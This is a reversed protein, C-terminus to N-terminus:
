LGGFAEDDEPSNWEDLTAALADHWPGHFPEAKRIRVTNGEVEYLLRDGATVGLTKRVAKPLTVQGKSTIKSTMAPEM